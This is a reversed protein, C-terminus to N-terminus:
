KGRGEKAVDDTDKRRKGRRTKGAVGVDGKRTRGQADVHIVTRKLAQQLEARLRRIEGIFDEVCGPADAYFEAVDAGFRGGILERIEADHRRTVKARDELEALATDGLLLPKRM